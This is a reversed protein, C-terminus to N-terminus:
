WTYEVTELSVAVQLVLPLSWLDKTTSVSKKKTGYKGSLMCYWELKGQRVWIYIFQYGRMGEGHHVTSKLPIEKVVQMQIM